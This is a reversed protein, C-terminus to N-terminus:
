IDDYPYQLYVLHNSPPNFLLNRLQSCDSAKVFYIMNKFFFYHLIQRSIYHILTMFVLIFSISGPPVKMAEYTFPHHKDKKPYKIRPYKTFIPLYVGSQCNNPDYLEFRLDSKVM